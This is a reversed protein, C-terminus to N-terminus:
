LDLSPKKAFNRTRYLKADKATAIKWIKAQKLIPEPKKNLLKTDFKRLNRFDAEHKETLNQYALPKM